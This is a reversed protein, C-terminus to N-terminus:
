IKVVDYNNKDPKRLIMTNTKKQYTKFHYKWNVCMQFFSTLVNILGNECAKLFRNTINNLGITKNPNLKKMAKVVKKKTIVASCHVLILYAAGFIDSLDASPSVPFFEDTLFWTKNEFFTTLKKDVSKQMSKILTFM